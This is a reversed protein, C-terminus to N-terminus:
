HLLTVCFDTGEMVEGSSLGQQMQTHTSGTKKGWKGPMKDAEMLDGHLHPFHKSHDPGLRAREPRSARAEPEWGPNYM